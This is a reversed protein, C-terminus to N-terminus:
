TLASAIIFARMRQATGLYHRLRDIWGMSVPLLAALKDGTAHLAM